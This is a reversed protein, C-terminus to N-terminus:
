YQYLISLKARESPNLTNQADMEMTYLYPMSQVTVESSGSVVVGKGGLGYDPASNGEVTDAIKAYVRYQNPSDGLDFRMDYSTADSPDISMTSNCNTWSSTPTMLKAALGGPTDGSGTFNTGFLDTGSCGTPTTIVPNISSLLTALATNDTASGRLAIFQYAVESGGIGAELGSKYRKQMGSIQTSSTIMYLLGAMILLAIAALILIMVLAIGKENRVISTQSGGKLGRLNLPFSPTIQNRNKM